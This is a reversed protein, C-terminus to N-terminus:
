FLRAAKIAWRDLSKFLEINKYDKKNEFFLQFSMFHEGERFRTLDFYLGLNVPSEVIPRTENNNRKKLAEGQIDKVYYYPINGDQLMQQSPRMLVYMMRDDGILSAWYEKEPKVEKKLFSLLGSGEHAEEYPKMNTSFEYRNPSEHLAFGYYFGSGKNLSKVGDLPNYIIAPLIVSNSFFSVETYMGVEFNLKLFQYIFTVRVITRVPGTKFAELRSNVSRHNVQLTLFYKLDAKAYFTSSDILPVNAPGSVQGPKVMEVGNVVLYNKQDFRYRYRSTQIEGSKLNFIVYKQDVQSPINQLFVAVYVAGESTEPVGAPPTIRIEFVAHPQQGSPWSKPPSVPGVDDGMFSLEDLNNFVGDGTQLNPQPGENLVYDGIGNIEDIQFPIPVAEGATGSRFVRYTKVPYQAIARMKHSPIVIPARHIGAKLPAMWSILFLMLGQQICAVWVSRAM